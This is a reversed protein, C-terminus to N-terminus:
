FVFGGYDKTDEIMKARHVKSFHIPEYENVVTGGVVVLMSNFNYDKRTVTDGDINWEVVVFETGIGKDNIRDEERNQKGNEYMGTLANGHIINWNLVDDLAKELGKSFKEGTKEMYWKAAIEKLRLRSEKVNDEQIDIGYIRALSIFLNRELNEKSVGLKEALALKRYLIEVLFNGTGCAPELWTKHLEKLDTEELPIIDIMDKVINEPTFVEGFKQVREKSKFGETKIENTNM